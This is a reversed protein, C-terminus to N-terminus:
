RAAIPFDVGVAVSFATQVSHYPEKALRPLEKKVQDIVSRISITSDPSQANGDRLANLLATALLGNSATWQKPELASQVPTAAALIYIGVDDPRPVRDRAAQQSAERAQVALKVEAIKALSEVAGGSQCADIVLVVRRAPLNRIGEAFMATNLGVEREEIPDVLRPDLRRELFPIYYFMEQGPPVRGHGAFYLFVVDDEKVEKAMAAFQDRIAERKATKDRLGEWLRVHAFPKKRDKQESFFKEVADADADPFHLAPYSADRQYQDIAVTFVHLTSRGVDTDHNGSLNSTPLKAKWATTTGVLECPCLNAPLKKSYTCSVDKPNEDFGSTGLDVAEGRGIVQLGAASSPSAEASLCLLTRGNREEVHALGQEAMTRLGPFRLKTAIDVLPPPVRGEFIESLLGPRFFDNYFADLPVVSNGLRWAVLQMVDSTGDFWGQPNVVLWDKGSGFSFLTAMLSGSQADWLRSTGDDSSSLLLRSSLYSLGCIRYTHEALTQRSVKKARDWIRITADFGGSALENGDPSFTLASVWNGHGHYSKILLGREVDWLVVDDNSASALLRSNPSFAVALSVAHPETRLTSKLKGSHADWLFVSGDSGGAAVWLGDPSCAVSYPGKPPGEFFHEEKGSPLLRQEIGDSATALVSGNCGVTLYSSSRFPVDITTLQEGTRADLVLVPPHKIAQFAWAMNQFLNGTSSVLFKADPSFSLASIGTASGSYTAIPRGAEASWVVINGDSRGIAFRTADPSIAQASPSSSGRNLTRLLRGKALSWLKLGGISDSSAFDDGVGFAFSPYEGWEQHLFGDLARGTLLDWVKITSRGEAMLWHGDRSFAVNRGWDDKFLFKRTWSGTDLVELKQYTPRWALFRGDPSLAFGQEMRDNNLTQLVAGDPLRRIELPFTKFEEDYGCQCVFWRGDPSVQTEGGGRGLEGVPEGSEPDWLKLTGGKGSIIKGDPTFSLPGFSARLFSHRKGTKAEWIENGIGGSPLTWGEVMETATLGVALWRDDPSFEVNLAQAGNFTRLRHVVRGTSVEWILILGDHGASAVFRGDSTFAMSAVDLPDLQTHGTQPVLETPTLSETGQGAVVSARAVSVTLVLLSRLLSRLRV